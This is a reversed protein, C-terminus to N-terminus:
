EHEHEHLGSLYNGLDPNVDISTVEHNVPNRLQYLEQVAQNDAFSDVIAQAEVLVPDTDTDPDSDLDEVQALVALAAELEMVQQLLRSNIKAQRGLDVCYSIWQDLSQVFNQSEVDNLNRVLRAAKLEDSHSFRSRIMDQVRLDIDSDSWKDNSLLNVIM